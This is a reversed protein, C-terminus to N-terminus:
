APLTQGVKAYSAASDLPLGLAAVEQKVEEYIALWEDTPQVRVVDYVEDFRKGVPRKDLDDQYRAILELVIANADARSMGETAHAVEAMWRAELGSVHGPETGAGSRPGILAASGSATAVMSQAAVEYLVTKTGPGGVPTVVVDNLLHTNRSLAQQAPGIARLIDPSTTNGFFPHTPSVSHTKTMYAMQLLICGGVIAIAMGERGGATGGYITNYFSHIISGSKVMHAVKTMLGYNTKFESIMAIHHWMRPGFRDVGTVSLEGIETVSNEACGIGLGPRGARQVANKALELEHWALLLEWPSRSRGERGYVTELSGDIMLDVLPEQAYSQQIALYLEEPAPTGVPGGKITIRRTDEPMRKYETHEDPFEGVTVHDPAVSIADLIEQRTWVARRGTDLNFVGIREAMELGAEFLRDAFTDDSPIPDASAPISIDYKMQLDAMTSPVLNLDYEEEDIIPGNEMRDLVDLLRTTNRM